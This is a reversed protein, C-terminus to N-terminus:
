RTQFLPAQEKELLGHINGIRRIVGYRAIHVYFDKDAQSSYFLLLSNHRIKDFFNVMTEIKNRSSAWPFWTVDGMHIFVGASLGYFIGVPILGKKTMGEVVWATDYHSQFGQLYKEKFEKPDLPNDEDTKHAAWLYKM